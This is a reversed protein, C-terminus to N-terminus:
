WLGLLKWWLGGAGIWVVIHIVSIIFGLMWWKQQSVYGSGFFVPAPGAGYHTLCGFLNSFFALILASLLPPAGAAVIVTLFAAYMASVHATNSAFFYHSYFYVIALVILATMWSLQSASEQMLGSFWPIMGLENLYTAMMVLVAFWVLTDWAGQEKKIDSWTLVQTLLLVCLGVFASTTASIDFRAGFIWLVLLLVFVGIMFKEERKLPGMEKLKRGAIDAAEPTEKLEPPYLKYIVLPIIFLSILGPVIAALAWGGWTITVGTIDQTIQVALPNAAMATVFMASTIMDGQFSVKTLFAGVRRETGDGVRSDYTESLSRIIPFIIGGARATNSPMAPALILDSFLMSYSLGLTKKGFLRVFIYAIRTGLGTKIFGRSIFFAIVILWITTNQFGSLSEELTLTKTLVILTLAIIATSGMPVPKIVLAVITAVFIGFLHWAEENLASPAPIFWLALGIAVCILLSRWNVEGQKKETPM